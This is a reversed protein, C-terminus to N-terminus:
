EENCHVPKDSGHNRKNCLGLELCAPKLLQPTWAWYNNSMPKSAGCCTPDGPGPILGRDRANCPPNKVLPGSPFNKFLSTVWEHGVRRLGMSQLRGPEETWSIKWALNRTHTAMEKELPDERGLSWVWTEWMAASM